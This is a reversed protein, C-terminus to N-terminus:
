RAPERFMDGRRRHGAVQASARALEVPYDLVLLEPLPAAVCLFDHAAVAKM